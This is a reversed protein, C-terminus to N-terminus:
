KHGKAALYTSVLAALLIALKTAAELFRKFPTSRLLTLLGTQKRNEVVMASFEARVDRVDDRLGNISTANSNTANIVAAMDSEHKADVESASSHVHDSHKVRSDLKTEVVDIRRELSAFGQRMAVHDNAIRDVARQLAVQQTVSENRLSAIAALIEDKESV